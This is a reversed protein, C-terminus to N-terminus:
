PAAPTRPWHLLELLARVSGTFSALDSEPLATEPKGTWSQVDVQDPVGGAAQYEIAQLLVARSWTERAPFGDTPAPQQDASWYIMSFPLAQARCGQELAVIEAWGGGFHAFGRRSADLRYFDLPGAGHRALSAALDQVWRRHEELRLSPYPEIDGILLDPFHERVRAIFIATQEATESDALGLQRGALWPEDMAVGILPAGLGAFRRWMRAGIEFSNSGNTSWPKVAGVALELGFGQTRLSDFWGRLVDDAVKALFHDARIIADVARHGIPWAEPAALMSVVQGDTPPGIVLKPLPARTAPM